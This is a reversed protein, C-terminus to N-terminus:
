LSKAAEKSDNYVASCLSIIDCRELVQSQTGCDLCFFHGDSVEFQTSGCVACETDQGSM